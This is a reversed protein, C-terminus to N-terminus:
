KYWDSYEYTYSFQLQFSGASRPMGAYRYADYYLGGDFLQRANDIDVREM